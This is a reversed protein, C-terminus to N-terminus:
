SCSTKSISGWSGERHQLVSDQLLVLVVYKGWIKKIEKGQHLNQGSNERVLMLISAAALFVTSPLM